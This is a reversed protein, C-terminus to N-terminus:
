SGEERRYVGHVRKIWRFSTRSEIVSDCGQYSHIFKEPSVMVGFHAPLGNFKLVIIDGSEPSHTLKWNAFERSAYMLAGTESTNAADGYSFDQVDVAFQEALIMRVLGWCDVGQRTRGGSLYPLGVYNNTWTM